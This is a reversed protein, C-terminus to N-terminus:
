TTSETSYTEDVISAIVDDTITTPDSPGEVSIVNGNADTKLWQNAQINDTKKVFNSDNELQSTKTPIKKETTSASASIASAIKTWLYSLGAQNLFNNAAM